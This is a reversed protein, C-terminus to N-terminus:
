KIKHVDLLHDELAPKTRFSMKCHECTFPRDTHVIFHAVTTRKASFSRRCLTCEYVRANRIQYHEVPNKVSVRRREEDSHRHSHDGLQAKHFFGEDCILCNFPRKEPHKQEYHEVLFDEDTYEQECDYCKRLRNEANIHNQIHRHATRQVKFTKKCVTCPYNREGTHTAKHDKINKKSMWKQCQDCQVKEYVSTFKPRPETCQSEYHKGGCIACTLSLEKIHSEQHQQEAKPSAFLRFCMRCENINVDDIVFTRWLSSTIASQVSDISHDAKIHESAHALLFYEKGCIFCNYLAQGHAKLCHINYVNIKSDLVEDCIQCKRKLNQKPTKLPFDQGHEKAHKKLAIKSTFTEQCFPCHLSIKDNLKHQQIKHKKHHVYLKYTDDFTQNCDIYKCQLQIPKPVVGPHDKRLHGDYKKAFMFQKNCKIFQCKYRAVFLSEPIITPENSIFQELCEAEPPEDEEQEVEQADHLYEVLYESIESREENQNDELEFQSHEFGVLQDDEDKVLDFVDVQIDDAAETIDESALQDDEVYIFDDGVQEEIIVDEQLEEVTAAVVEEEVIEDSTLLVHEAPVEEPNCDPKLEETEGYSIIISKTEPQHTVHLIDSTGILSITLEDLITVIKSIVDYYRAVNILMRCENSVTGTGAQVYTSAM